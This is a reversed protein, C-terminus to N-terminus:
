NFVIVSKVTENVIYTGSLGSAEPLPNLSFGLFTFPWGQLQLRPFSKLSLGLNPTQLLISLLKQAFM